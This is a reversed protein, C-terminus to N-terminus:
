KMKKFKFIIQKLFFSFSLFFAHTHPAASPSLSASKRNNLLSGSVPSLSLGQIRPDHGLSFASVSSVSGHLHGSYDQKFWLGELSVKSM